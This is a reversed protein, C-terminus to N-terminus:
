TKYMIGRKQLSTFIRIRCNKYFNERIKRDKAFEGAFCCYIKGESKRERKKLFKMHNKHFLCVELVIKRYIINCITSVNM